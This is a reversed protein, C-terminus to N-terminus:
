VGNAVVAVALATSALLATSVASMPVPKLATSTPSPGPSTTSGASSADTVAPPTTVTTAPAKTTTAVTTTPVKTTTPAVTTTQADKSRQSCYIKDGFLQKVQDNFLDLGKTALFKGAADKLGTEISPTVDAVKFPKGFIGIEVNIAPTIKAETLAFGTIFPYTESCKATAVMAVAKDSGCCSKANDLVMACGLIGGCGKVLLSVPLQAFNAQLALTMAGADDFTMKLDTLRMTNLGSVWRARVQYFTSQTDYLNGTETCPLPPNAENCNGITAPLDSMAFDTLLPKYAELLTSLVDPLVPPGLGIGGQAHIFAATLTISALVRMM